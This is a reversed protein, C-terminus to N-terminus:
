FRIENGKVDLLKGTPFVDDYNNVEALEPHLFTCDHKSVNGAETNCLLTGASIAMPEAETGVNNATVTAEVTKGTLAVIIM